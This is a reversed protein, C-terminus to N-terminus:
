TNGGLPGRTLPARHSPSSTSTWAPRRRRGLERLVPYRGPRNHDSRALVMESTAHQRAYAVLAAAPSDGDLRALDGGLQGVLTAYGSLLREEQGPM